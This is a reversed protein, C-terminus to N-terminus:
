PELGAQGRIWASLRELVAPALTTEIQAYEGPLGTTAPQFLHNLRDLV